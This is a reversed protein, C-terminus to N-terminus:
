GAAVSRMSEEQEQLVARMAQEDVDRDPPATGGSHVPLTGGPQSMEPQSGPPFISDEPPIGTPGPPGAHSAWSFLLVTNPGLFVAQHMKLM